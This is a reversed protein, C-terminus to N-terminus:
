IASELILAFSKRSLLSTKINCHIYQSFVVIITSIEACGIFLSSQKHM